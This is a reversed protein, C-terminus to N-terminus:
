MSPFVLGKRARCIGPRGGQKSRRKKSDSIKTENMVAGLLIYFYIALLPFSFGAALRNFPTLLTASGGGFSLIFLIGTLIMSFAIPIGSLILILFGLFILIGIM